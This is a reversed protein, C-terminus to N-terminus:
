EGPDIQLFLPRARGSVPDRNRGVAYFRGAFDRAISGYILAKGDLPFDVRRSHGTELDHVLWAHRRKDSQGAPERRGVGVLYREGAYTFLSPSYNPNLPDFPGLPEVVSPGSEMPRIRYLYGGHVSIAMSGDALYVLGIIGHSKGPNKGTLYNHLPTAGIENLNPDFEVLSVSAGSVRPVFVHGRTDAILNRSMHGGESGVTLSRLSGTETDHQYLVHNWLGLAYVWRGGGAVATLGEQVWHLHQWHNDGPYLRWLHSGWKPPASGDGKEGEEDVSSFYLYGDDAQVIRSHIKIQKEGAKYLGASKLNSLVDGRDIIEDREPDYEFLHASNDGGHVSVGFWIHGRRDRGTAGWIANAGPFDPVRITRVRPSVYPNEPAPLFTSGTREAVTAGPGDVREVVMESEGDAHGAQVAGQERTDGGVPRDGPLGIWSVAVMLVLVGVFLIARM